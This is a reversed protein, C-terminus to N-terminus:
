TSSLCVRVLMYVYVRMWKLMTNSKFPAGVGLICLKVAPHLHKLVHAGLSGWFRPNILDVHSARVPNIYDSLGQHTIQEGAMESVLCVVWPSSKSTQTRTGSLTEM